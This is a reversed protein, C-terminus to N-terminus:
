NLRAHETGTKLRKAAPAVATHGGETSKKTGTKKDEAVGTVSIVTLDEVKDGRTAKVEGEENEERERTGKTELDSDKSAM